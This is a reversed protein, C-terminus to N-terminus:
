NTNGPENFPWSPGSNGMQERIKKCIPCIPFGKPDRLPVWVKGCLAVVPQGTVASAVVKDKRVYHAYRENDGPAKQPDTETRELVGVGGQTQPGGPATPEDLANTFEM